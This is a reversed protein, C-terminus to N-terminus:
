RQPNQDSLKLKDRLERAEANVSRSNEIVYQAYELLDSLSKNPYIKNNDALKSNMTEEKRITTLYFSLKATLTRVIAFLDALFAM